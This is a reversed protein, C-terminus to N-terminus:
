GFTSGNEAHSCRKTIGSEFNIPGLLM